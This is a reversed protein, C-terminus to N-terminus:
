DGSCGSDCSSGSDSSSSSSSSDDWSGSSGGGGFSGGGGEFKEEPTSNNSFSDAIIFASLVDSSFVTCEENRNLRSSRIVTTRHASSIHSQMLTKNSSKYGCIKCKLM